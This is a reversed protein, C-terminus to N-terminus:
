ESDADRVVTYECQSFTPDTYDLDIRNVGISLYKEGTELLVEQKHCFVSESDKSRYEQKFIRGPITRKWGKAEFETELPESSPWIRKEGDFEAVHYYRERGLTDTFLNKDTM